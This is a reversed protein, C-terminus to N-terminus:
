AAQEGWLRSRARNMDATGDDLVSFAISEGGVAERQERSSKPREQLIELTITRQNGIFDGHRGRITYKVEHHLRSDRALSRSPFPPRTTFQCLPMISRSRGLPFKWNIEMLLLPLTGCECPEFRRGGNRLAQVIRSTRGVFTQHIASQQLRCRKSLIRFGPSRLHADYQARQRISSSHRRSLVNRKTIPV